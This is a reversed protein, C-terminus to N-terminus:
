LYCIPGLKYLIVAAVGLLDFRSQCCLHQTRLISLAELVDLRQEASIMAVLEQEDCLLVAVINLGTCHPSRVILGAKNLGM